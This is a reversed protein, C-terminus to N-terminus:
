PPPSLYQMHAHSFRAGYSPRSLTNRRATPRPLLPYRPGQGGGFLASLTSHHRPTCPQPLFTRQSGYRGGDSSVKVSVYVLGQEAAWSRGAGAEGEGVLRELM